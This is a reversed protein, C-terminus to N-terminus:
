PPPRLSCIFLLAACSPIAPSAHPSVSLEELGHLSRRSPLPASLRWESRWPPKVTLIVRERTIGLNVYRSEALVHPSEETSPPESPEVVVGGLVAGAMWILLFLIQGLREM